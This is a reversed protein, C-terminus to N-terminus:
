CPSKCAALASIDRNTINYLVRPTNNPTLAPAAEILEITYQCCDEDFCDLCECFTVTFSDKWTEGPDVDNHRYEWRQLEKKQGKKCKKCLRFKLDIFGDIFDTVGTLTIISSYEIKVCPKCLCKTNITVTALPVPTDTLALETPLPQDASQGCELIPICNKGKERDKPDCPDCDLKKKRHDFKKKDCCDSYDDYRCDDWYDCEKRRHDKKYYNICSAMFLIRRINNFHIQFTEVTWLDM